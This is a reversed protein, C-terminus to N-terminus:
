RRIGLQQILQRYKEIDNSKLYDLLRRRKGVMQLLGRRGHHDKPNTKFHNNLDNIRETLLAIQAETSGTDQENKGFQKVLELKKEKTIPM